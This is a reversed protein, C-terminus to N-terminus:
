GSRREHPRPTRSAGPVQSQGLRANAERTTRSSRQQPQENRARAAGEVDDATTVNVGGPGSMAKELWTKPRGPYDALSEPEDAEVAVDADAPKAKQRPDENGEQM